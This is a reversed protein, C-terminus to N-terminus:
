RRVMWTGTLVEVLSRHPRRFIDVCISLALVGISKHIWWGVPGASPAASGGNVVLFIVCVLAFPLVWEMLWRGLRQLSDAPRGTRDVATMGLVADTPSWPCFVACFLAIFAALGLFARVCEWWRPALQDPRIHYKTVQNKLAEEMESTVKMESERALMVAERLSQQQESTWPAQLRLAKQLDDAQRLYADELLLEGGHSFLLARASAVQQERDPGQATNMTKLYVRAAHVLFRSEFHADEWARQLQYPHHGVVWFMAYSMVLVIATRYGMALIRREGSVSTPGVTAGRASEAVEALSECGGDGLRSLFTRAKMPLKEVAEVEARGRDSQTLAFVMTRHLWRQVDADTDTPRLGEGRTDEDVLGEPLDLVIMRDDPTVWLRDWGLPDPLTGDERGQRVEECLDAIWYRVVEWPARRQIRKLFPMGPPAEWADWGGEVTMRGGLWRLRGPRSIRAVAGSAVGGGAPRRCVWVRRKLAEDTGGWFEVGRIEALRERLAFPGCYGVVPPEPGSTPNEKGDVGMRGRRRHGRRALVVRTGSLWDHIGAYGNGRRATVFLAALFIFYLTSSLDIDAGVGPQRGIVSIAKATVFAMPGPLAMIVYRILARGIGPVLGDSDVVRIGALKKGVAVGFLGEGLVTYVAIALWVEFTMGAFLLREWGTSPKFASVVGVGLTLLVGMQFVGEVLSAGFRHLLGAPELAKETFPELDKRLAAYDAYRGVAKKSLCRSVVRALAKPVEPRLTKLAPADKTLVESILKVLDGGAFPPRGTLLYFMTAGVSYIDSRVDLGEGRLQEPSAFAPTGVGMRGVASASEGTGLTTISLGFDGVKVNGIEDVFCNSPKLDRHLIGVAGAAELGSVIQLVAGVADKVSMPGLSQIRQALTGGGVYEMVIVPSGAIEESRFVYVVNPDNVSAALRGEKEFRRRDADTRLGDKLVKLALRRGSEREEAEYVTGMSGSGLHRLIRYDGFWEGVVLSRGVGDNRDGLRPPQSERTELAVRVVCSPCLGEFRETPAEKGCSRCQTTQHMNESGM